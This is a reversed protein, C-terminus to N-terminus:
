ASRFKEEIVRALERSLSNAENAAHLIDAVIEAQEPDLRADKLLQANSSVVALHNALTHQLAKAHSSSPNEM